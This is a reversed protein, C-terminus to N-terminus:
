LATSNAFTASLLVIDTQAPAVPAGAFDVFLLKLVPSTNSQIESDDGFWQVGAISSTSTSQVTVTVGLLRVYPDQLQIAYKGTSIAPFPTTPVGDVITGVFGSSPNITVPSTGANIVEENIVLM